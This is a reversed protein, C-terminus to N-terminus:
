PTSAEVLVQYRGYKSQGGLNVVDFVLVFNGM